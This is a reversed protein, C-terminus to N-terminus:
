KMAVSTMESVNSCGQSICKYFDRCSSLITHQDVLVGCPVNSHCSVKYLTECILDGAKSTLSLHQINQKMAYRHIPEWVHGPINYCIFSARIGVFKKICGRAAVNCHVISNFIAIADGQQCHGHPQCLFQCWTYDLTYDIKHLRHMTANTNASFPKKNHQRCFHHHPFPQLPPLSSLSDQWSQTPVTKQDCHFIKWDCCAPQSLVTTTHIISWEMSRIGLSETLPMWLIYDVELHQIWMSDKQKKMTAHSELWTAQRVSCPNHCPSKSRPDSKSWCCLFDLFCWFWSTSSSASEISDAKTGDDHYLTTGTSKSLPVVFLLLLLLLWFILRSNNSSIVRLHWQKLHIDGQIIVWLFPHKPPHPPVSSELQWITVETCKHWVNLLLNCWLLRRWHRAVTGFLVSSIV